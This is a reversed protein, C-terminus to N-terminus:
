LLWLAMHSGRTVVVDAADVRLGRTTRLMEAIAARLRPDGNPETYDLLGADSRLARRYARALAERPASRTDPIGGYLALAGRPFPWFRPRMPPAVDGPPDFPFPPRLPAREAARAAAREVAPAASWRKPRVEPLSRAVFTARGAEASLFGEADLERYAALVTNRHVGLIAALERSSPLRSGPPLRGGRADEAIARAIALFAPLPAGLGERWRAAYDAVPRAM